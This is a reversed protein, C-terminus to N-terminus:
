WCIRCKHLHAANKVASRCHWWWCDCWGVSAECLNVAESLPAAPRSLLVVSPAWALCSYLWIATDRFGNPIPCMIMYVNKSLIVSVIVEWFISREEQSVKYVLLNHKVTLYITYNNKNTLRWGIAPDVTVCPSALRSDAARWRKNM